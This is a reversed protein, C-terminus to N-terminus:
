DEDQIRIGAVSPHSQAVKADQEVLEKVRQREKVFKAVRSGPLPADPSRKTTTKRTGNQRGASRLSSDADDQAQLSWLYEDLAEFDDRFAHRSPVEDTLRSPKFWVSSKCHSELVCLKTCPHADPYNKKLHDLRFLTGKRCVRCYRRLVYFDPIFQTKTCNTCRKWLAIEAYQWPKLLGAKLVPLGEEALAHSWIPAGDPGSLLRYLTRSTERLHILSVADVYRLIELLPDLPLPTFRDTGKPKVRSKRAPKKAKKAPKKYGADDDSDGARARKAPRTTADPEDDSSPSEAYSTVGSSRRGRAAPM